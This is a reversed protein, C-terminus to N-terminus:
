GSHRCAVDLGDQVLFPARPFRRRGDVQPGRQGQHALFHQEDIRIRLAVECRRESPALVLQFDGQVGMHLRDYFILGMRGAVADETMLFSNSTMGALMDSDPM